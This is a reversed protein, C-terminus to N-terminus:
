LRVNLLQVDRLVTLNGAVRLDMSLPAKWYQEEKTERLKPLNSVTVLMLQPANAFQEERLATLSGRDNILM